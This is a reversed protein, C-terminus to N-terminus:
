GLGLLRGGQYVIVAALWALGVTYVVQYLTWRLGFEQRMAAVAVMCPVYLLVFVNFAVAALPSFASTLANELDSADEEEEGAGLFDAEPMNIGPIVNVTRPVINVTEQVTLVAAEGFSIVIGGIDEGFTTPEEAEEEAASEEAAEGDAVDAVVAEDVYIQNMTGVVVEKAIFGTILSGAAQWDGFGAPAFVPALVGSISGFLSDEARVDNFSGADASIPLAMMFWILISM